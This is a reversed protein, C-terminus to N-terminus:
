FNKRKMISSTLIKNEHVTHNKTIYEGKKKNTIKSAFIRAQPTHYSSSNFSDPSKSPFLSFIYFRQLIEIQNIDASISNRM